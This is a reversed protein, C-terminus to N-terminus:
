KVVEIVVNVLADGVIKIIREICMKLLTCRLFICAFISSYNVWLEM